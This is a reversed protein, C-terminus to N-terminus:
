PLRSGSSWEPSCRCCFRLSCCRPTSHFRAPRPLAAPIAKLLTRTGCCALLLGVAGGVASLLMSETLLQRIMRAHSAGLASRIAFERSRAISRALLLNAVNACAILMLFGVAALLVFLLPEVNGVLDEKMSVLKITHGADAQPYAVALNRAVRM